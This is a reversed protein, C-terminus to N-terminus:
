KERGGLYFILMASMAMGAAALFVAHGSINDWLYGAVISGLSWGLGSMAAGMLTQATAKLGPPAAESVYGVAAVWFIGFCIGSGLVIIIVQGPTASMGVLSWVLTFGLLAILILRRYSYRAFWRVGFYM